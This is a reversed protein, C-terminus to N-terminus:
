IQLGLLRMPAETGKATKIPLALIYFGKAPLLHANSVNEVIYKGAGLLLQHTPFGDQPRDPSLTDIGLGVLQKELLYKAAEKSVSPFVYNNRYKDPTDWFRDWGTYVIVFCGPPIKGHLLELDYSPFDVFLNEAEFKRDSINKDELDSLTQKPLNPTGVLIKHLDERVTPNDDIVLIRPRDLGLENLNIMNCVITLIPQSITDFRSM